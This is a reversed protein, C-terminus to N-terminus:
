EECFGIVAVGEPLTKQLGSLAEDLTRFYGSFYHKKEYDFGIGFAPPDIRVGNSCFPETNESVFAEVTVDGEPTGLVLKRKHYYHGYYWATGDYEDWEVTVSDFAFKASIWGNGIGGFEYGGDTKDLFMVMAPLENAFKEVGEDGEYVVLPDDSYSNGNEDNKWTRPLEYIFDKVGIFTVIAEKIEMDKGTCNQEADKHINLMEIKVTLKGESWSVFSWESDHFEFDCLRDISVYKM